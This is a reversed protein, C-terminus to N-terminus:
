LSRITPRLVIMWVLVSCIAGAIVMATAVSTVTVLGFLALAGIPFAGNQAMASLGM